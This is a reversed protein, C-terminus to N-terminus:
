SQLFFFYYKCRLVDYVLGYVRRMEAENAYNQTEDNNEALQLLKAAKLVDELRWGPDVCTDLIVNCSSLSSDSHRLRLSEDERKSTSRSPILPYSSTKADPEWDFKEIYIKKASGRHHGKTKRSLKKSKIIVGREEIMSNRKSIRINQNFTVM